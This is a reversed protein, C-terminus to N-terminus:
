KSKYKPKSGSPNNEPNNEVKKFAPLTPNKSTIRPLVYKISWEVGTGGEGSARNGEFWQHSAQSNEDTGGNDGIPYSIVAGKEMHKELTKYDVIAMLDKFHGSDTEFPVEGLFEAPATKNIKYSLAEPDFERTEVSDVTVKVSGLGLPKGHGLKFMRDSDASNEGLAVTWVIEKLQEDTINEFFIDFKFQAGPQCLEMSSNLNTRKATYYSEKELMPDHVYFKRGNLEVDCLYRFKKNNYLAVKYDYTWALANEPRRTYFEMSTTKPNLLEKLTVNKESSFTNEVAQADAFRLRSAHSQGGRQVSIMGFLECAKCLRSGDTESCSKHTGLLDEIKNKLVSRGCQSPSLYVWTKNNKDTAMEYFIPYMESSSPDKKLKYTLISDHKNIFEENKDEEEYIKINKYYDEVAAQLNECKIEEGKKTFIFYTPKTVTDGKEEEEKNYWVRKYEYDKLERDKDRKKLKRMKAPYLHWEGNFYRMLGPARKFPHRASMIDDNYVLFCSNSLAEYYSRIMGRLQSGPIVPKGNVRFFDYIMHENEIRDPRATEADPIALPTRVTLTCSLKGTKSGREPERRIVEGGLRAFTYPNIFRKKEEIWGGAM